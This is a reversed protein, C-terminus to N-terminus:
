EWWATATSWVFVGGSNSMESYLNTGAEGWLAAQGWASTIPVLYVFDYTGTTLAPPSVSTKGSLLESMEYWTNTTPDQCKCAIKNGAVVSRYDVAAWVLMNANKGDWSINCHDADFVTETDLQVWEEGQPPPPPPPFGRSASATVVLLVALALGFLRRM